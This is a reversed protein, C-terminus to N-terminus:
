RRRQQTAGRPANQGFGGSESNGWKGWRIAQDSHRSALDELAKGVSAAARGQALKGEGILRTSERNLAESAERISNAATIGANARELGGIRNNLHAGNGELDYKSGANMAADHADRARGVNAAVGEAIRAERQANAEARREEASSPKPQSGDLTSSPVAHVGNGTNELDLKVPVHGEPIANGKHDVTDNTVTGTYSRIPANIAGNQAGISTVTVRDGVKPGGGGGSSGSAFEGNSDRAQDPDYKQLIARASEAAHGGQTLLYEIRDYNSPVSSRITNNKVLDPIFSRDLHEVRSYSSKADSAATSEGSQAAHNSALQAHTYAYAAHTRAEEESPATEAARAHAEAADAHAQAAEAHSASGGKIFAADSLSGAKDTAASAAEANAAFQGNSNREQDESYKLLVEEARTREYGGRTMAQRLYTALKDSM